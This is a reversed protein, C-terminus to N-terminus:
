SDTNEIMQALMPNWIAGTCSQVCDAGMEKYQLYDDSGMVGGVGIIAFDESLTERIHALREVMTLGAWKISAGCIGSMLRNPGPLAQKGNEDVVPAPITNIVSIGAVFPSIRKVITKLLTEQDPTFYGFKVLLPTDGITEKVSRCITEDAEPNFCLIGENAVNPCSLNVEIAKVGTEHALRAALAFDAYYDDDTFGKQITGVVSAILLQGSGAYTQAKKMDEQWFDPGKSPNGFSNTISYDTTVKTTTTKGVLPNKAKEITLDGDIDVYLVNPFENVPFSVSRQTKYHNV